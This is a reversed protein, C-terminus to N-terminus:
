YSPFKVADPRQEFGSVERLGAGIEVDSEAFRHPLIQKANQRAIDRVLDRRAGPDDQVAALFLQDPGIDFVARCGLLPLHANIADMERRLTALRAVVKAVIDFGQERCPIKLFPLGECRGVNMDGELSSLLTHHEPMHRENLEKSPSLANAFRDVPAVDNPAILHNGVHCVERTRKFPSKLLFDDREDKM